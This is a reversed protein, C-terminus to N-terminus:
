LPAPNRGIVGSARQPLEEKNTRKQTIESNRKNAENDSQKTYLGNRFNM